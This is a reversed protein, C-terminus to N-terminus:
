VRLPITRCRLPPRASRSTEGRPPPPGQSRSHKAVVLQFLQRDMEYMRRATQYQSFDTHHRVEQRVFKLGIRCKSAATAVNGLEHRRSIVLWVKRGAHVGVPVACAAM